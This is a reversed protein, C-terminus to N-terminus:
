ISRMGEFFKLFFQKHSASMGNVTQVISYKKFLKIDFMNVSQMTESLVACKLFLYQQTGELYNITIGLLDQITREMNIAVSKKIQWFPARSLDRYGAAEWM